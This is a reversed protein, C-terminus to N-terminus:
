LCTGPKFLVSVPCIATVGFTIVDDGHREIACLCLTCYPCAPIYLGRAAYHRLLAGHRLYFCCFSHPSFLSLPCRLLAVADCLSMVYLIGLGAGVGLCMLSSPSLPLFLRFVPSPFLLSLWAHPCCLLPGLGPLGYTSPVAWFCVDRMWLAPTKVHFSYGRRLPPPCLSFLCGLLISVNLFFTAFRLHICPDIM